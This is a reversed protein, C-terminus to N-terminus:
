GSLRGKGKKRKRKLINRGGKTRMRSRFGISRARRIKSPQYTRKPMSYNYITQKRIEVGCELSDSFESLEPPALPDTQWLVLDESRSIRRSVSVGVYQNVSNESNESGGFLMKPTKLPQRITSLKKLICCVKQRRWFIRSFMM